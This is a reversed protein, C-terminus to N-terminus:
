ALNPFLTDLIEDLSNFDSDDVALIEDLKNEALTNLLDINNTVNNTLDESLSLIKYKVDALKTHGWHTISYPNSQPSTTSNWSGSGSAKSGRNREVPTVEVPADNKSCAPGDDAASTHDDDVPETSQSKKEGQAKKPYPADPKEVDVCGNKIHVVGGAHVAQIVTVNVTSSGAMLTALLKDFDSM